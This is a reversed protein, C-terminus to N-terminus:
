KRASCNLLTKNATRLKSNTWIYIFINVFSNCLGLHFGILWGATLIYQYYLNPMAFTLFYVLFFPTWTLLYALLIVTVMKAAKQQTKMKTHGHNCGAAEASSTLEIDQVPGTRREHQRAIVLIKGYLVVLAITNLVYLLCTLSHVYYVPVIENDECDKHSNITAWPLFAVLNFILAAVWTGAIFLKVRRPTLLQEYHLPYTIAIYRETAITFLHNESNTFPFNIACALIVQGLPSHCVPQVTKYIILYTDLGVLIDALSLSAIIMNTRTHLEPFTWIAILTIMNGVLIIVGITAMAAIHYIIFSNWWVPPYVGTSNDQQEPPSVTFNMIGFKKDYINL